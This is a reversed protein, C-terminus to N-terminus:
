IKIIGPSPSNPKHCGQSLVPLDSVKKKVTYELEKWGSRRKKNGIREIKSEKGEEKIEKRIVLTSICM